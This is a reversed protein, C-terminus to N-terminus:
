GTSDTRFEVPVARYCFVFTGGNLDIQLEGNRSQAYELFGPVDCHDGHCESVHAPSEQDRLRDYWSLMMEEGLLRRAILDALEKGSEFDPILEGGRVELIKMTM